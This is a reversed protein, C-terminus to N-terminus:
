RGVGRRTGAGKGPRKKVQKALTRIELKLAAIAIDKIADMEAAKAAEAELKMAATRYAEREGTVDSLQQRLRATETQAFKAMAAPGTLHRYEPTLWAVTARDEISRDDAVQGPPPPAAALAALAEHEDEKIWAGAGGIVTTWTGNPCMFQNGVRLGRCGNTYFGHHDFWEAGFRLGKGQSALPLGTSDTEVCGPMEALLAASNFSKFWYGGTSGFRDLCWMAGGNRLHWHPGSDGLMKWWREKGAPPPVTEAGPTPSLGHRALADDWIKEAESRVAWKTHRYGYLFDWMAALKQRDIKETGDSM